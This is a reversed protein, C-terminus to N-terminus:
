NKTKVRYYRLWEKANEPVLYGPAGPPQIHGEMYWGPEKITGKINTMEVPLNNIDRGFHVFEHLTAITVILGLKQYNFNTKNNELENVFDNDIQLTKTRSDYHGVIDNGKNDKLNHIVVVKPGKGPQMLEKIKKESFGTTYTLAKLINPYRTLFNPLDTVLAKFNPYNNLESVDLNPLNITSNPINNMETLDSFPVDRNDDLYGVAWKGFEKVEREESNLHTLLENAITPNDNLFTAEAASLHLQADPDSNFWDILM